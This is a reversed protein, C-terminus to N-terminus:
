GGDRLHHRGSATAKRDEDDSANKNTCGVGYTNKDNNVSHALRLRVGSKQRVAALNQRAKMRM